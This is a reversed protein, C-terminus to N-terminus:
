IRNKDQFVEILFTHTRNGSNFLYFHNGDFLKFTPSSKLFEAWKLIEPIQTLPDKNAGMLLTKIDLRGFNNIKLQSLLRFDTQSKQTFKNLLESSKILENPIGGFEILRKTLVDLPLTAMEQFRDLSKESPANMGSLVLLSPKTNINRCTLFALISGMSHGLFISHPSQIQQIEGQITKIMRSLNDQKETNIYFVNFSSGFPKSWKMYQTPLSGAHPFLFLNPRGNKHQHLKILISM